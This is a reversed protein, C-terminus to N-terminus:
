LQTHLLDLFQFQLVFDTVVLEVEVVETELEVAVGLSL